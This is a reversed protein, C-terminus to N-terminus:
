DPRLHQVPTGLGPGNRRHQGRPDLSRLAPRRGRVPGHATRPDAPGVRPLGEASGRFQLYEPLLVFRAGDAAATEALAVATAINGAVDERADLQVLAVRLHM